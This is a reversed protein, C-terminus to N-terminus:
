EDPNITLTWGGKCFHINWKQKTETNFIDIDVLFCPDITDFVQSVHYIVEDPLTTDKVLPILFSESAKMETKHQGMKFDIEWKIDNIIKTIQM